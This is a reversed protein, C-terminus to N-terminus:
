VVRRQERQLREAIFGIAPPAMRQYYERAHGGGSTTLDREFPIGIAALKMRLRDASDSWQEDEPDCCFWTNRPWNLPHVHLTATDQRASEADAYMEQLAADGERWSIQYDIAPSIAAVVPLKDARKFALRLAGQGGMGIGLLAVGPPAASWREAVYPLVRDVLYREATIQDDFLSCIRDTWWTPGTQPAILRLRHQALQRTFEPYDALRGGDVDHLYLVTFGSEHPQPPEYVDCSHGALEVRSWTGAPSVMQSGMM